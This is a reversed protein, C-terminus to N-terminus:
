MLCPKRCNFAKDGHKKHFWCAGPPKPSRSPPAPTPSRKALPAKSPRSISSVANVKLSDELVESSSVQSQYLEDAKLALAPPDSVKEHLLHSRVDILLRRLFLGRLIFDLKYDDSLLALMRNM